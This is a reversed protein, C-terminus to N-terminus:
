LFFVSKLMKGWQRLYGGREVDEAAVLDITKKCEGGAFISVEGVKDGKKVPATVSPVTVVSYSLTDEEAKEYSIGVEEVAVAEVADARGKGVPVSACANDRGYYSRYAYKAFGYDLLAATDTFQSQDRDGGMVVTILRLGDRLATGTLCNGAETTWGTKLGDMGEYNGLLKNTNYIIKTNDRLSAEELSTYELIKPHRVAELALRSMDYASSVHGEAPLGNCNEFHTDDMGLEQARVNMRAVFHEVTGGLYEAVAVAADNASEVAVAMLLDHLSMQEDIELYIQSGGMSYARESATVIDAPSVTGNEMDEAALLLVMLKTMSAPPRQEHENYALLTDGSDADVLVWAKSNLDLDEGLAPLAAFLTLILSLVLLGPSIIRRSKM